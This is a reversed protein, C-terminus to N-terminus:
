LLEDISFEAYYQMYFDRYNWSLCDRHSFFFSSPLIFNSHKVDGNVFCKIIGDKSENTMAISTPDVTSTDKNM